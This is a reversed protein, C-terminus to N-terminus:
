NETRRRGARDLVRDGKRRSELPMERRVLGFQEVAHKEIHAMAEDVSDTFLLLHLDAEDITGDRVMQDLLEFLNKWYDKGLVVVPFQEIKGTQILTVAEFLEDM